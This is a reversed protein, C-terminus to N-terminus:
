IIKKMMTFILVFCLKNEKERLSCLNESLMNPLMSRKKDPLYISSIRNTFSSWINLYDVLIAVNSIYVSVVKNNGRVTYSIADDLDTSKSDITFIFYDKKTRREINNNKTIKDVINDYTEKKIKEIVAKNFKQISINLSKICFTNTFIISLTLIM